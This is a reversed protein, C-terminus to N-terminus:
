PNCFNCYMPDETKKRDPFLEEKSFQCKVCRYLHSLTSETPFGCHDCPLGKLSEVVGFGPTQCSPCHTNIKAALKKATKEIVMMRTPNYMARMDTEIYVSGSTAMLEKFTKSLQAYSTIGKVLETFDDKAKRLILGHSPFRVAEAFATLESETTITAGNFNTEMSIERAMIELDNKKDILLLLEDDAPVFCITPHPGFSGESALVLDCHFQEIAMLCKKRATIFPTDKREVEGTFTGLVDTDLGPAIFCQVGLEKELVPAIKKEKGHKTAILLQRGKFM